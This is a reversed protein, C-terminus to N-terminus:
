MALTDSPAVEAAEDAAAAEEVVEVENYCAALKGARSYLKDLYM